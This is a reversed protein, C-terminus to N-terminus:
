ISLIRSKPAACIICHKTSFLMNSVIGKRQRLRRSILLMNSTPEAAMSPAHPPPSSVLELEDDLLLELEELELELELEDDELELEEEELELEEEELELELEELPPLSATEATSGAM